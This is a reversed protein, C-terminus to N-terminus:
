QTNADETRNEQGRTSLNNSLDVTSYEPPSGSYIESYPTSDAPYIDSYSPPPAEYLPNFVTNDPIFSLNTHSSVPPSRQRMCTVYDPPGDALHHHNICTETHRHSNEARSRRAKSKRIYYCVGVIAGLIIIIPLTLLFALLTTPM